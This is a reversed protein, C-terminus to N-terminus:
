KASSSVTLCPLERGNGVDDRRRLQTRGRVPDGVGDIFLQGALGGNEAGADGVDGLLARAVLQEDGLRVAEVRLRDDAGVLRQKRRDPRRVASADGVYREFVLLRDHVHLGQRRAPPLDDGIKAAAVARRSPRRVARTQRDCQGLVASRLEVQYVGIAVAHLPERAGGSDVGLRVKGGVAPRYQKGRVTAA